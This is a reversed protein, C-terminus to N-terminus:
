RNAENEITREKRELTILDKIDNQAAWLAFDFFRQSIGQVNKYSYRLSILSRTKTLGSNVYSKWQVSVYLIGISHM